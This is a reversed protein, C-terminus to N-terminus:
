RYQSALSRDGPIQPHGTRTDQALTRHPHGGTRHWPRHRHRPQPQPCVCGYKARTHQQADICVRSKHKYNKSVTNDGWGQIFNTRQLRQDRPEKHPTPAAGTTTQEKCLLQSVPNSSTCLQFDEACDPCIYQHFGTNHQSPQQHSTVPLCFPPWHWDQFSITGSCPHPPCVSGTCLITASHRAVKKGITVSLSSAVEPLAVRAHSCFSVLGHRGAKTGASALGPSFRQDSSKGSARQRRKM